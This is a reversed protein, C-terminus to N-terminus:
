IYFALIFSVNVCVCNPLPGQSPGSIRPKEKGGVLSSKHLYFSADLFNDHEHAIAIAIAKPVSGSAVVAVVWLNAAMRTTWFTRPNTNRSVTVESLDSRLMALKIRSSIHM